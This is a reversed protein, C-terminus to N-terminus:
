TATDHRRLLWAALVLSSSVVLNTDDTTSPWTVITLLGLGIPVTSFWLSDAVSLPRM